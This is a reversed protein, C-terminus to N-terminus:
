SAPVTDSPSTEDNALVSEIIAEAEETRNPDGFLIEAIARTDPLLDLDPSLLRDALFRNLTDFLQEGTLSNVLGVGNEGLLRFVRAKYLMERLKTVKTSDTDIGNQKLRQRLLKDLDSFSAVIGDPATRFVEVLQEIASNRWDAPVIRIRQDRLIREYRERESIADAATESEAIQTEPPRHDVLSVKHDHEGKQVRVVDKCAKLFASFSRFDYNGEDFAPDLRTMVPKLRAKMVWEDDDSALSAVAKRLLQKAPALDAASTTPGEKAISPQSRQLLTRYLKFENCSHIWYENTSERVGIGIVIRGTERLKQALSIYDSDGGIIVFHTIHPYRHADEAADLVLRIDAGNKANAGRPFLQILDVSHKLLPRAYERFRIWNAYARNVVVDGEGAVFDMVARVNVECKSQGSPPKDSPKLDVLARHINEFDWYVAVNSRLETQTM